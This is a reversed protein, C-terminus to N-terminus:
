GLRLGALRLAKAIYGSGAMGYVCLNMGTHLPSLTQTGGPCSVEKMVLNVTDVDMQFQICRKPEANGM